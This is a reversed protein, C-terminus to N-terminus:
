WRRCAAQAGPSLLRGRGGRSRGRSPPVALQRMQCCAYQRPVASKHELSSTSLMQYSTLRTACMSISHSALFTLGSIEAAAQLTGKPHLPRGQTIVACARRSYMSAMCIHMVLIAHTGSCPQMCHRRRLQLWLTRM